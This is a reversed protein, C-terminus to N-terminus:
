RTYLIGKKRVGQERGHPSLQALIINRAGVVGQEVRGEPFLFYVYTARKRKEKEQSCAAYSIAHM